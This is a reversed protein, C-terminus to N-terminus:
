EAFGDIPDTPEGFFICKPCPIRDWKIMLKSFLYRGQAMDHITM